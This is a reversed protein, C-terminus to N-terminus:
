SVIQAIRQAPSLLTQDAGFHDARQQQAGARSLWPEHRRHSQPASTDQAAQISPRGCPARGQDILLKWLYYPGVLDDDMPEPANDSIM